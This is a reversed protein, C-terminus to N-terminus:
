DSEPRRARDRAAQLERLAAPLGEYGDPAPSTGPELKKYVDFFNELEALLHEPLQDLDQVEQFNPDGEAVTIIKAERRSEGQKDYRIWFVGVVRARVWCGPFTADELLVLADLPEGDIGETGAVFGYDAPFSVASYLRRDLRMARRQHDYEYKHKSGQTTEVLVDVILDM